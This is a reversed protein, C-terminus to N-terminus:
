SGVRCAQRQRSRGPASAPVPPHLDASGVAAGEGSGEPRAMLPLLDAARQAAAILTRPAAALSPSRCAALARRATMM